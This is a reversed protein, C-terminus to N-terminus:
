TSLDFYPLLLLLTWRQGSKNFLREAASGTKARAYCEVWLRTDDKTQRTWSKVDFNEYGQYVGEVDGPVDETLTSSVEPVEEEVVAEKDVMGEGGGGSDGEAVPGDEGESDGEDRKVGREEEGDSDKDETM